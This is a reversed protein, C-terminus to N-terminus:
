CGQLMHICCEHDAIPMMQGDMWRHCQAYNLKLFKKSELCLLDPSPLGGLPTWPRPGPPILPVFAGTSSYPPCLGRFCFDCKHHFSHMNSNIKASIKDSCMFQKVRCSLEIWQVIKAHSLSYIVPGYSLSIYYRYVSTFREITL